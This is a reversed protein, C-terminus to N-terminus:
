NVKILRDEQRSNTLYIYKSHCRRDGITTILLTAIDLVLAVNGDGLISAGAIGRTNRLYNGLTKLVIDQQGKLSDVTLCAKLDGAKVVVSEIESNNSTSSRKWGFVTALDFVSLVTDRWMIVKKGRITKINDTPLKAAEVVDALPIACLTGGAEVLLAPLIALTLPLRLSFRTGKNKESSVTVSGRLAEINTKVVDLGVGRGSVETTMQATSVRPLFILDIAEADTMKAAREATVIGKEVASRKISAPDLGRGDDTITIVIYNQEHYASLIITGTEPKGLAIRQEPPEIGHDVANRLLHVLPDKIHEIVSRDIETEQGEVVFNIKKGAKRALDRVMRPFGTFVTELPLMRIKMIDQQLMNVVKGTQIMSRELEDIIQDGRYKAELLRSLQALRNRNVVLEGIQEMLSDLREIDIRVSQRTKGATEPTIKSSSQAYNGNTQGSRVHHGFPIIRLSALEPVTALKERLKVEESRTALLLKVSSDVKGEEVEKQAPISRIIEGLRSAEMLIQFCRVANWPSNKDIEASILLVKNGEKLASQVKQLTEEDSFVEEVTAHPQHERSVDTDDNTSIRHLMSIALSVDVEGSQPSTLEVKLARLTDLSTLLTDILEADVPRSGKRLEDFVTEMAHALDSMRQHGIMAASGKITHAARFIENLLETTAGSHELKVIDEDLVQLLEETEQLFIALDEKTLNTMLDVRDETSALNM